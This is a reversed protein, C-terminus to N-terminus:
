NFGFLMFYNALLLLM